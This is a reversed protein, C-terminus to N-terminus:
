EEEIQAKKNTENPKNVHKKKVKEDVVSLAV